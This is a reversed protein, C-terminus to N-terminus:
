RAMRGVLSPALVACSDRTQPYSREPERQDHGVVDRRPDPRGQRRGAEAVGGERGHRPLGGDHQPDGQRRDVDEDPEGYTQVLASRARAAQLLHRQDRDHGGEGPHHHEGGVGRVDHHGARHRDTRGDDEDHDGAETPRGPTGVGLAGLPAALGRRHRGPGQDRARAVGAAVQDDRHQAVRAPLPERDTQDVVVAGLAMQADPTHRHETVGPADPLGHLATSGVDEDHGDGARGRLGEGADSLRSAGLAELDLHQGRGGLEEPLVDADAVDAVDVEGVDEAAVLDVGVDGRDGVVQGPLPDQHGTGSAGDARLQAPLDGPETGSLQDHEVPVLRGQMRDLQRQRPPRQQVVAADDQAVDPVGHRQVPHEHRSAGVHHEVGRRELVQRHELLVGALRDLRVDHAGAVHELGGM